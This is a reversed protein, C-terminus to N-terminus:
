GVLQNIFRNFLEKTGPAGEVLAITVFRFERCPVCVAVKITVPPVLNAMRRTWIWWASSTLRSRHRCGRSRRVALKEVWAAM